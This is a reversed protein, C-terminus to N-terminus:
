CVLPCKNKKNIWRQHEMLITKTVGSSSTPRETLTMLPERFPAIWLEIGSSPLWTGVGIWVGRPSCDMNHHWPKIFRNEWGVWVSGMKGVKGEKREKWEKRETKILRRLNRKWNEGEKGFLNFHNWFCSFFFWLHKRLYRKVHPHYTDLYQNQEHPEKHSIKWQEEWDAVFYIQYITKYLM